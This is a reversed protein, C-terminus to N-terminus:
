EGNREAIVGATGPDPAPGEMPLGACAAVAAGLPANPAFAGHYRHRRRRPPPILVAVRDLWERAALYVVTQGTLGPSLGIISLVSAPSRGNWANM